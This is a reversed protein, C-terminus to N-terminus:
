GRVGRKEPLLELRVTATGRRTMGIEDAAARSIDIIRSRHFPGRDNVRVIVSKENRLNTVRVRSGFPLTRHAATLDSPDFREGSATRNGALERGYFSARGEALFTGAAEAESVPTVPVEVTDAPLLTSPPLDVKTAPSSVTVMPVRPLAAEPESGPALTAFSGASLLAASTVVAARRRSAKLRAKLRSALSRVRSRAPRRPDLVTPDTVSNMPDDTM